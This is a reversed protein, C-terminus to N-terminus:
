QHPQPTPAFPPLDFFLPNRPSGYGTIYPKMSEACDYRSLAGLSRDFHPAFIAGQRLNNLYAQWGAPRRRKGHWLLHCAFCLQYQHLHPGFPESYDEAHYDIRGRTQGCADCKSPPQLTCQAIQSKLWLDARNRQAPLFGNYPSM